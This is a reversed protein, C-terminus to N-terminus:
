WLYGEQHFTFPQPYSPPFAKLREGKVKLRKVTKTM